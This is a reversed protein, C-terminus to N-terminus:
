DASLSNGRSAIFWNHVVDGSVGVVTFWPGDAAMKFRKGLPDEQDALLPAGAVASVIAVPVTDPRDNDDFWRGRLLPIRM